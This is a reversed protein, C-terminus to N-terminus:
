IHQIYVREKNKNGAYIPIWQNANWSYFRISENTDQLFIM